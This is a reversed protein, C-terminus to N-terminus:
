CSQVNAWGKKKDGGMREWVFRLRLVEGPYGPQPGKIKRLVIGEAKYRGPIDGFEENEM